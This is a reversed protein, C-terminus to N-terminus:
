FWAVLFPFSSFRSRQQQLESTQLSKFRTLNEFILCFTIQFVDSDRSTKNLDFMLIFLLLLESYEYCFVIGSNWSWLSKFVIGLDQEHKTKVTLGFLSAM